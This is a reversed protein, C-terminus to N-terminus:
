KKFVERFILVILFLIMFCLGLIIQYYYDIGGLYAFVFAFPTIGIVTAAAYPLFRIRSFVGLAYSLVDVPVVMRLFLVSWFGNGIKVREEMKYVDELSVFRGIIEVGFRRALGFAIFAGISWGLITLFAGFWIGWFGVALSILPLVTIPAFVVALINVLVYIMMGVGGSVILGELREINSQILFSFLVFFGIIVVIWFIGWLELRAARRM